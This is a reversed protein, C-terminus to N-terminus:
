SGLGRLSSGLLGCGGELWIERGQMNGLDRQGLHGVRGDLGGAQRSFSGPGEKGTNERTESLGHHGRM